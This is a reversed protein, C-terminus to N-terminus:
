SHPQYATSDAVPASRRLSVPPVSSPRLPCFQLPVARTGWPRSMSSSRQGPFAAPGRARGTYKRARSQWSLVGLPICIKTLVSVPAAATPPAAGAPRRPTVRNRPRACALGDGEIDLGRVRDLVDLLLDLVLLTRQGGPQGCRARHAAHSPRPRQSRRGGRRRAATRRARSGPGSRPGM